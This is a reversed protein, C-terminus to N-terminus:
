KKVLTKFDKKITPMNDYNILYNQEEFIDNNENSKLIRINCGNNNVDLIYGVVGNKNLDSSSPVGLYLNNNTTYIFGDHLHGSILIKEDYSLWKSENEIDSLKDIKKDMLIRSIYLRHSFHFKTNNISATFRDSAFSNFNSNLRNLIRIDLPRDIKPEEYFPTIPCVTHMYKDHNGCISYTKIDKPYYMEFNKYFEDIKDIEEEGIKFIDGLHFCACVNQKKAYSYLNKILEYNEEKSGFHTDSILLFSKSNYPIDDILNNYAISYMTNRRNEDLLCYEDQKILYNNRIVSRHEIMMISLAYKLEEKTCDISNLKLNEFTENISIFANYKLIRKLYMIIKYINQENYKLSNIEVM